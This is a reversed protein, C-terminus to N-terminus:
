LSHHNRKRFDSATTGTHQHFSCCFRSMSEYGTEFAIEMISKDTSSLLKKAHNIRQQTAFDSMSMGTIAKFQERLLSYSMGLGSAIEAPSVHSSINKRLISQAIQIKELNKSGSIINNAAKYSVYGLLAMIFGCIARQTGCREFKSLSLIREYIDCVTDSVGINIVPEGNKFYSSVTRELQEGGKFGVWMEDWGTQEDPYYFHKEGPRILIISGTDVHILPHLDSRFYGQGDVIYIMQYENLLRGTKQFRYGSPHTSVPYQANPGCKQRGSTTCLMDTCSDGPIQSLYYMQSNGTDM